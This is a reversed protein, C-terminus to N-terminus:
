PQGARMRAVARRGDVLGAVAGGVGGAAAWCAAAASAHALHEQLVRAASAGPNGTTVAVVDLLALAGILVGSAAGWVAGVWARRAAAGILAFAPAPLPILLLLLGWGLGADGGPSRVGCAGWLSYAAIMAVAGAVTGIM